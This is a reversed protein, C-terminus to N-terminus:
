RRAVLRFALALLIRDFEQDLLVTRIYDSKEQLKVIQKM